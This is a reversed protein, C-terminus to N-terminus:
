YDIYETVTDSLPALSKAWALVQERASRRVRVTAHLKVPRAGGHVVVGLAPLRRGAGAFSTAIVTEIESHVLRHTALVNRVVLYKADLAVSVAAVRAALALLAVLMMLPITAEDALFSVALGILVGVLVAAPASFLFLLLYGEAGALLRPAQVTRNEAARVVRRGM